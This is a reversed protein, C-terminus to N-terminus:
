ERQGKGREGLYPTLDKLVYMQGYMDTVDCFVKVAEYVRSDCVNKLGALATNFCKREYGAVRSLADKLAQDTTQQGERFEPFDVSNLNGETRDRVISGFDNYMRCMVSMHRSVDDAIFKAECTQFCDASRGLLCLLFCFAFPGGTHNAATSRVWTSYPGRTSACAGTKSPDDQKAHLQHNDKIQILHALLFEQLNIRLQRREYESAKQVNQHLLVFRVFRSLSETIEAPCMSSIESANKSLNKSQNHRNSSTDNGGASSPNMTMSDDPGTTSSSPVAPGNAYSDPREPAWAFETEIVDFLRNIDDKLEALYSEPQLALSGEMVEDVQYILLSLEMMNLLIGSGLPAPQILNNGAVWSFPIFDVYKNDGAARRPFITIGIQRLRSSFFNAQVEWAQIRWAATKSFLPMKSYLKAIRVHKTNESVNRPFKPLEHTAASCHLAALVYAQSLTYAGYTVKEIWLYEPNNNDLQPWLYQRASAIASDIQCRFPSAIPLPILANITLVAYATVERANDWSGNEKQTQLTYILAEWLTRIISEETLEQTNAHLRSNSKYILVQTLVQTMLMM